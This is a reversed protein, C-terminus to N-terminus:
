RRSKLKIFSYSLTEVLAKTQMAIVKNGIPKVQVQPLRAVLTNILAQNKKKAPTYLLTEVKKESAKLALKKLVVEEEM